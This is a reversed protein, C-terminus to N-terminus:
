EYYCDKLDLREIYAPLYIEQEDRLSAHVDKIMKTSDTSADINCGIFIVTENYYKIIIAFNRRDYSSQFEPPIHRGRVSLANKNFSYVSSEADIVITDASGMSPTMSLCLFLVVLLVLNFRM